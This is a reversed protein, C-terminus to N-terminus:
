PKGGERQWAVYNDVAQRVVPSDVFALLITRIGESHSPFGARDLAEYVLTREAKSVSGSITFQRDAAM